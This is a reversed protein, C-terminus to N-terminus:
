HLWCFYSLSRTEQLALAIFNYGFEGVFGSDKAEGIGSIM